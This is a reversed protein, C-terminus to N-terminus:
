EAEVVCLCKMEHKVYYPTTGEPCTRTQCKSCSDVQYALVSMGIILTIVLPGWRLWSDKM